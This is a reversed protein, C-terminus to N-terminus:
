KGDQSEKAKDEEKSIVHGAAPADDDDGVDVSKSTSEEPTEEVHPAAAEEPIHLSSKRLLTSDTRAKRATVPPTRPHDDSSSTRRPLQPLAFPNIGGMKALKEAVRKRRAEEDEEEEEEPQEEHTPETHVEAPLHVPTSVASSVPPEEEVDPSDAKHVATDVEAELPDEDEDATPEHVDDSTEPTLEQASPPHVPEKSESEPEEATVEPSPEPSPEVVKTDEDKEPEAPQPPPAELEDPVVQPADEPPPAPVARAPKRRPPAARKPMVPVPM